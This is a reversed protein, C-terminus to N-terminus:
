YTASTEEHDKAVTALQIARSMADAKTKLAQILQARVVERGRRAWVLSM